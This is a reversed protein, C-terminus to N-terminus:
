KKPEEIFRNLVWIVRGRIPWPHGQDDEHDKCDIVMPFDRLEELSREDENKNDGDIICYRKNIKIIRKVTVAHRDALWFAYIQGEKPQVDKRDIWVISGPLITPKMSIGTTPFAVIRDPDSKYGRPLLKKLFPLYDAPPIEAIENGPGLSLSDEFLKVKEFREPVLHASAHEDRVQFYPILQEDALLQYSPIDLAASVKKLFDENFRRKGNLIENLYPSSIKAAKAFAAANGKFRRGIELRINERIGMGICM